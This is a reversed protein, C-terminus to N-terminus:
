EVTEVTLRIKQPFDGAGAFIGRKIYISSAIEDPRGDSDYRVSYTKASNLTFTSTKSAITKAM